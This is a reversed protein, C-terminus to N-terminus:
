PNANIKFILGMKLVPLYDIIGNKIDYINPEFYMQFGTARTFMNTAGITIGISNSHTTHMSSLGYALEWNNMVHGHRLYISTGSGNDVTRRDREGWYFGLNIGGSIYTNHRYYYELGIPLNMGPMTIYSIQRGAINQTYFIYELPITVKWNGKKEMVLKNDETLYMKKPFAFKKDTFEDVAIGIGYNFVINWWYANSRLPSKVVTHFQSDLVNSYQIIFPQSSRLTIYNQFREQIIISDQVVSLIKVSSSPVISITQFKKNLVTACSTLLLCYAVCLISVLKYKM